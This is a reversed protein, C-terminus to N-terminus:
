ASEGRIIGTPQILLPAAPTITRSQELPFWAFAKGTNDSTTAMVFATVPGYGAGTGTFTKQDAVSEAQGGVIAAATWDAIGRAWTQAAYGNGSPENLLDALTDVDSPTDNFLRGFFSVPFEDVDNFIFKVVLLEGENFLRNRVRLTPYGKQEIIAEFLHLRGVVQAKHEQLYRRKLEHAWM